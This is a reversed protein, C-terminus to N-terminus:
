QRDFEAHLFKEAADWMQAAKEFDVQMRRIGDPIKLRSVAEVNPCMPVQASSSIALQTEVAPSLIFSVLRQPM